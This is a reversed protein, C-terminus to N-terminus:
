DEEEHRARHHRACLWAVDLPRSYDPHHAHVRESGCVECPERILIGAKLAYAVRAQARNALVRRPVGRRKEEERAARAEARKARREANIRDKHRAWRDRKGARFKEPNRRSWGATRKVACAKCYSRYGGGPNGTPSFGSLPKEIGCDNCRKTTAM